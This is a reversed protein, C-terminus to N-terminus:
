VRRDTNDESPQDEPPQHAATEEIPLVGGAPDDGTRSDGSAADLAPQMEEAERQGTRENDSM